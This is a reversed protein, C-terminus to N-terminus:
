GARPARLVMGLALGLLMAGLTFVVGFSWPHAQAMHRIWGELRVEQVVLEQQQRSVVQGSRVLYVILRYRGLPAEAPLDVRAHFLRGEDISVGAPEVRYHGRQRKLRLLADQWDAMPGTDGSSEESSGEDGNTQVSALAAQLSLGLRRRQEADLLSDLAASSLLYVLGPAGSITLQGAQVWFPGLRSKRSLQLVQEPSVMQIIVETGPPVAGFCLISQGQFRMTVDVRQADLRAVLHDDEAAPLHAPAGALTLALLLGRARV